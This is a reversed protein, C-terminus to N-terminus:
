LYRLRFWTEKADDYFDLCIQVQTGRQESYWRHERITFGLEERMKGRLLMVSKPWDEHLRNSLEHWENVTLTLMALGNSNIFLITKILYSVGSWVSTGM